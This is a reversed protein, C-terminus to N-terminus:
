AKEASVVISGGNENKRKMIFYNIAELRYKDNLEIFMDKISGGTVNVGFDDGIHEEMVMWGHPPNSSTIFMATNNDLVDDILKDLDFTSFLTVADGQQYLMYATCEECWVVELGPYDEQIAAGIELEAGCKGCKITEM